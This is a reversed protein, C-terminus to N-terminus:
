VVRGHPVRALITAFIELGFVFQLLMSQPLVISFKLWAVKNSQWKRKLCESTLCNRHSSQPLCNLRFPSHAVTTKSSHFISIRVKWVLESLMNQSNMCRFHVLLLFCLFWILLVTIWWISEAFRITISFWLGVALVTSTSQFAGIQCAIFLKIFLIFRLTTRRPELWLNWGRIILTKNVFTM